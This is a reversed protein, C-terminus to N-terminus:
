YTESLSSTEKPGSGTTQNGVYLTLALAWDWRNHESVWRVWTVKINGRVGPARCFGRINDKDNIVGTDLCCSSCDSQYQLHDANKLTYITRVFIQFVAMPWSEHLFIMKVFLVTASKDIFEQLNGHWKKRKFPNLIFGKKICVNQSIM